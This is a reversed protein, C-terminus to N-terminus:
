RILKKEIKPVALSATYVLAGMKPSDAVIDATLGRQALAENMIPGISAIVVQEALARQVPEALHEQEAIAFLHDLQVSSTFLVVDVEGAALKHAAQRLPGTDDPLEWRYLAFAEVRAGRAELEQVLGANPKGYEQIALKREARGALAAVIERWTNPEPITVDPAIGAARLVAAPKPGRALLKVKRLAAVAREPGVVDRWFALGVGTMLILLEFAGNELGELLRFADSHDALAREQVSPAVFAEGGQKRILIEIEAARRSELSLVRRGDLSM